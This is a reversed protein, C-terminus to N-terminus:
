AESRNKLNNEILNVYNCFSDYLYNYPMVNFWRPLDKIVKNFTEQEEVAVNGIIGLSDPYNINLNYKESIYNRHDREDFYEVYDRLQNQLDYVEARLGSRVRDLNKIITRKAKKYDVIVWKKNLTDYAILDPKLDHEYKGLINKLIVQHNFKELHLARELIIPHNEFFNDIKLEPTSEDVFMNLMEEKLEKLYALYAAKENKNKYGNLDRNSNIVELAFEKINILKKTFGTLSTIFSYDIPFKMEGKQLTINQITSMGTDNESIPSLFMNFPIPNGYVTIFNFKRNKSENFRIFIQKKDISYYVSSEVEKDMKFPNPLTNKVGKIGLKDLTHIIDKVEDIFDNCFKQALGYLIYIETETMEVKTGIM